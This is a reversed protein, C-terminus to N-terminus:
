QYLTRVNCSYHRFLLQYRNKMNQEKAINSPYEMYDGVRYPILRGKEDRLCSDKVVIYSFQKGPNPIRENRERMCKIFCNNCLNEKKPSWT